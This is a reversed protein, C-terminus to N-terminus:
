ISVHDFHEHSYVMTVTEPVDGNMIEEVADTIRTGSGDEKM